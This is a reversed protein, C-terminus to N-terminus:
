AQNNLTGNCVDKFFINHLRQQHRRAGNMQSCLSHTADQLYIVYYTIVTTLVTKQIQTCYAAHNLQMITALDRNNEDHTKFNPNNHFNQSQTKNNQM